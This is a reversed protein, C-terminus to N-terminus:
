NGEVVHGEAMVELITIGTLDDQILFEIDDGLPLRLAVGIENQGAFTLRGIFGNVGQSLISAVLPTWDYMIGALEGNDKVNFVNQTVGNRRRFVLGKTLKTIDGFTTLDVASATICHFILTTIDVTAEIGTPTGTGRIGFVQPTVSGDVNMNTISVDVAAGAPYTSDLPSDLTITTGVVATAYATLYRVSITDFIIMYSGVSIGTASTVVIDYSGKLAEASLTTQNTVNNFKVIIPATTQDQLSVDLSTGQYNRVTQM